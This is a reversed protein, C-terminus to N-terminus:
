ECAIPVCVYAAGSSRAPPCYSSFTSMYLRPTMRNSISLWNVVPISRASFIRASLPSAVTGSSSAVSNPSSHRMTNSSVLSAGSRRGSASISRRLVAPEVSFVSSSTSNSLLVDNTSRCVDIMSLIRRSFCISCCFISCSESEGGRLETDGCLRVSGGAPACTADPSNVSNRVSRRISLSACAEWVCGLTPAASHCTGVSVVCVSVSCVCVDM